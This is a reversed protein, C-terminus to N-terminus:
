APIGDWYIKILIQSQWNDFGTVLIPAFRHRYGKATKKFTKLRILDVTYGHATIETCGKRHNKYILTLKKRKFIVGAAEYGRAFTSARVKVANVREVELHNLNEQHIDALKM